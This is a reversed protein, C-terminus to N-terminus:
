MLANERECLALLLPLEVHVPTPATRRAEALRAPDDPNKFRRELDDIRAGEIATLAVIWPKGRGFDLSQPIATVRPDRAAAFEEHLSESIRRANNLYRAVGTGTHMQRLYTHPSDLFPSIWRDYLTGLASRRDDAMTLALISSVPHTAGERRRMELYNQVVQEFGRLLADRVSWEDESLQGNPFAAWLPLCFVMVGANLYAKAWLARDEKGVAQLEFFGEGSGEFFEVDLASRTRGLWGTRLLLRLRYWEQQEKRTTSLRQWGQYKRIFDVRNVSAAAGTETLQRAGGGEAGEAKFLHMGDRELYYTLAGSQQGAYTRYVMAQFLYSKGVGKGGIIGVKHADPRDFPEGDSADKQLAVPAPEPAPHLTLFDPREGEEDEEVLPEPAPSAMAVEWAPLEMAETVSANIEREQSAAIPAALVVDDAEWPIAPRSSEEAM